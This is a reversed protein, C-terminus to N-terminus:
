TSPMPEDVYQYRSKELPSFVGSRGPVYLPATRNGNLGGPTGPKLTM